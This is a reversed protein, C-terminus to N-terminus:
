LLKRVREYGKRLEEAVLRLASGVDGAADGAERGIVELRARAHEWQKELQEWQDRVEARALHMRVRLEDRQTALKDFLERLEQKLEAM